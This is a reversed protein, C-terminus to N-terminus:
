HILSDIDRDVIGIMGIGRHIDTDVQSFRKAGLDDAAVDVGGLHM